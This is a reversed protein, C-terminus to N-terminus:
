AYPNKQKRFRLRIPIGPLDFAERLGNLLYREYTEPLDEPRNCFIVFTPPRTKAQTM